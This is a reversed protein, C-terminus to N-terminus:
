AAQKEATDMVYDFLALATKVKLKTPFELVKGEPLHPWQRMLYMGAEPQGVLGTMAIRDAVFGATVDGDSGDITARLDAVRGPDLLRGAPAAETKVTGLLMLADVYAQQNLEGNPKLWNLFAKAQQDTLDSKGNVGFVARVVARYDDGEGFVEQFTLHLATITRATPKARGNGAARRLREVM